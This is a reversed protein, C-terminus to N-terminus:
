LTRCETYSVLPFDLDQQYKQHGEKLRQEKIMEHRM